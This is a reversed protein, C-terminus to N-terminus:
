LENMFFSLVINMPPRTRTFSLPTCLMIRSRNTHHKVHFMFLPGTPLTNGVPGFSFSHAFSAPLFPTHYSFGRRM